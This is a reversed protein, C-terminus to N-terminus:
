YKIMRAVIPKDILVTLRRNGLFFWYNLIGSRLVNQPMSLPKSAKVQWCPMGLGPCVITLVGIYLCNENLHAVFGWTHTLFTLSILHLMKAIGLLNVERKPM